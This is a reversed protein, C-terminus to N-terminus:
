RGGLPLTSGTYSVGLEIMRGPKMLYHSPTSVFICPVFTRILFTRATNEDVAERNPKKHVIGVIGM